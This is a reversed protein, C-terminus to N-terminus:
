AEEVNYEADYYLNYSMDYNDLGKFDIEDQAMEEADSENRAKVTVCVSVPVTVTVYYERSLWGEPVAEHYELVETIDTDIFSSNSIAADLHHPELGCENLLYYIIGAMMSTEDFAKNRIMDKSNQLNEIRREADAYNNEAVELLHELEAVREDYMTMVNEMKKTIFVM